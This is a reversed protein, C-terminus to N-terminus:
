LKNTLVQINASPRCLNWYTFFQMRWLRGTTSVKSATVGSSDASNHPGVGLALHSARM